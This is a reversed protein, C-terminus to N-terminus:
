KFQSSAHPRSRCTFRLRLMMMAYSTWFNKEAEAITFGAVSFPALAPLILNGDRGIKYSADSEALGRLTVRLVDGAALRYDKGMTNFFLLQADQSQEFEQAGYIPLVEGALIRYYRQIVSEETTDPATSQTLLNPDAFADDTNLVQTDDSTPVGVELQERRENQEEFQQQLQRALDPNSQLLLLQEISQAQAFGM